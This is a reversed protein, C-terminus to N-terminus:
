KQTECFVVPESKQGSQKPGGFKAHGVREYASVEAFSLCTQVIDQCLFHVMSQDAKKFYAPGRQLCRLRILIKCVCTRKGHLDARLRLYPSLVFSGFVTSGLRNIASGFMQHRNVFAIIAASVGIGSPVQMLLIAVSMVSTMGEVAVSRAGRELRGRPACAQNAPEPASASIFATYCCFLSIFLRRHVWGLLLLMQFVTSHRSRDDPPKRPQRASRRRPNRGCVRLM